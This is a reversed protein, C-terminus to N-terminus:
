RILYDAVVDGFNVFWLGCVMCVGRAGGEGGRKWGWGLLLLM